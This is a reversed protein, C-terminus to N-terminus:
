NMWAGVKPAADWKPKMKRGWEKPDREHMAKMSEAVAPHKEMVHKTMAAVMDDWSEATLQQNCSGGLEGCTMTKM